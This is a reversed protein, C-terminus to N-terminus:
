KRGRRGRQQVQSGEEAARSPAGKREVKVPEDLSPMEMPMEISAELARKGDKGEADRSVTHSVNGVIAKGGEGVHVYKVTVNQQGRGRRKDLAALQREYIGLLKAAHRLNQERGDFTQSTIMARRLCDMAAEHTAVMQVSLMGEMTDQPKMGKLLELAALAREKRTEEDFERPMWLSELLQLALKDEAKDDFVGNEIPSRYANDGM